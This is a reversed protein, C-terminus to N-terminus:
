VSGLTGTQRVRQEVRIFLRHGILLYLFTLITGIILSMMPSYATPQGTANLLLQNAWFLPIVISFPQLWTPLATIPFALGALLYFPFTMAVQFIRVSRALVFTIAMMLAAASVSIILLFLGALLLGVSSIPLTLGFGLWAVLLTEILSILSILTNSVIRGFLALEFAMSPTSVLLELTANAREEDVFEASSFVANHWISLLAPGIIAYSGLLELKGVYHLMFLFMAAHFIPVSVASLFFSVREVLVTQLQFRFAERFIWFVRM